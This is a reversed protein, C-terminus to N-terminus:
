AFIVFGVVVLEDSQRRAVTELRISRDGATFAIRARLNLGKPLESTPVPVVPCPHTPWWGPGACSVGLVTFLLLARRRWGAM